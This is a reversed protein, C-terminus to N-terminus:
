LKVLISHTQTVNILTSLDAEHPCTLYLLETWIYLLGHSSHCPKHLKCMICMECWHVIPSRCLIEKMRSTHVGLPTEMAIQFSNKVFSGTHLANQRTITQRSAPARHFCQFNKEQAFKIMTWWVVKTAIWADRARFLLSPLSTDLKFWQSVWNWDRWM